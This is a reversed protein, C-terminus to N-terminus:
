RDFIFRRLSGVITITQSGKRQRIALATEQVTTCTLESVKSLPLENFIAIDVKALIHKGIPSTGHETPNRLVEGCIIYIIGHRSTEAIECHLNFRWLPAHGSSNWAIPHKSGVNMSAWCADFIIGLVLNSLDCIFVGGHNSAIKVQLLSTNLSQSDAM